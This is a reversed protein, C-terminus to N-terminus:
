ELFFPPMALFAKPPKGGGARGERGERGEGRTADLGKTGAAAASARGGVSGIRDPGHSGSRCSVCGARFLVEARSRTPTRTM